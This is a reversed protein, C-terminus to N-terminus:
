PTEPDVLQEFAVPRNSTGCDAVHERAARLLRLLEAPDVREVSTDGFLVLSSENEDLKKLGRVHVKADCGDSGSVLWIYPPKELGSSLRALREVDAQADLPLCVIRVRPGFDGHATLGEVSHPYSGNGFDAQARYEWAAQGIQHLNMMQAAIPGGCGGRRVPLLVGVLLMALAIVTLSM